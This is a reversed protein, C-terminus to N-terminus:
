RLVARARVRAAAFFAYVALEVFEELVEHGAGVMASLQTRSGDVALSIASGLVIMAIELWPIEGQRFLEGPIRWFRYRVAVALMAVALVGLAIHVTGIFPLLHSSYIPEGASTTKTSPYLNAGWGLERGALCLWIIVGCRWYWTHQAVQADAQYRIAIAAGVLLLVVQLNEIPGNEWAVSPAVVNALSLSAVLSAFGVIRFVWMM